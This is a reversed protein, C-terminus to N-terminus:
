PLTESNRRKIKIDKPSYDRCSEEKGVYKCQWLRGADLDRFCDVEGDEKAEKSLKAQWECKM